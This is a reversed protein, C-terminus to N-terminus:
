AIPLNANKVREHALQLELEVIRKKGQFNSAALMVSIGVFAPIEFDKTYYWYLVASSFAALIAVVGLLRKRRSTINEYNHTAYEIDLQQKIM